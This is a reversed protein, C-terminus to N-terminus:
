EGFRETLATNVGGWDIPLEGREVYQHFSSYEWDKVQTVFGHKVPNIHTYDVHRQLDIEDRIQHEWYRRQWIGKERKKFKSDSRQANASLQRSFQGKIHQWRLAFDHDGAPLKWIVHIHDPLVCIAITKFPHLTQVRRYATRLAAIHDILATSGRNALTVTFFYTGGAINSRIYESM